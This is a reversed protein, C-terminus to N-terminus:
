KLEYYVTARGNLRVGKFNKGLDVDKQEERKIDISTLKVVRDMKELAALFDLAQKQSGLLDFSVETYAIKTGAIQKPKNPDVGAVKTDKNGLNIRKGLVPVSGISFSNVSLDSEQVLLSLRKAM